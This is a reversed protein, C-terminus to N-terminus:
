EHNQLGAPKGTPILSFKSGEIIRGTATEKTYQNDSGSYKRAINKRSIVFRGYTVFDTMAVTKRQSNNLENEEYGTWLWIRIDPRRKRAEMILRGVEINSDLPEGGLISLHDIDHNDLLSLVEEMDFPKGYAPDWAERNFCGECHFHCGSVYVSVGIGEGNSIDFNKIRAINM